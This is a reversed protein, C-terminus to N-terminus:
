ELNLVLATQPLSYVTVQSTKRSLLGVDLGVTAPFCGPKIAEARRALEVMGGDIGLTWGNRM